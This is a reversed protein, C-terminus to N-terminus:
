PPVAQGGLSAASMRSQVDEVVDVRHRNACQEVSEIERPRQEDDGRLGAARRLRHRLVEDDTIAELLREAPVAAIV